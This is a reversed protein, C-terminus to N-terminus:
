KVEFLTDGNEIDGWNFGGFVQAPMPIDKVEVMKCGEYWAETMADRIHGAVKKARDEERDMEIIYSDHIFNCFLADNSKIDPMMYHMALKAIESGFGQNEINAHDTLRQGMYRRGMPTQRLRGRRHSRIVEEHWAAIGPWAKKWQHIEKKILELGRYTMQDKILISQVMGAGGIYLLNFNYTKTVQRHEKTYDSGFIQAAVEGHPDGDRKFLEILKIENTIAAITRLELQPYDAYLLLRGSDPAVGFCSKTKRPLQQLNQEKCTFRGSRAAPAFRGYVRGDDTIFKDIFSNQKLLKRVELVQGARENGTLTATALALGDSEDLNVYPRVQKWSNANIPLNIAEVKAQNDKHMALARGRDVPLGNCQFDLAHRVSIMDLKYNIDEKFEQVKDFAELLYYVDISAYLYQKDTLINSDWKTKQLLKKDINHKKYPDFGLTVLMINDLSFSHEYPYALRALYFVDEFTKPVFKSGIQNQITSIDYSSFQFVLEVDKLRQVMIAFLEFPDPWEVILVKDWHQQYFQVLRIKGYLKTTETDVALPLEPNLQSLLTDFTGINYM